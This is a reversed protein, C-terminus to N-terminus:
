EVAANTSLHFVSSLGQLSGISELLERWLKTTFQVGCDSIICQPVGHLRYIQKITMKVLKKASPLGPCATFHAQKSFLDVVTWIVTNGRIESLKVIFDMVIEEWPCSHNAVAQLLGPLKGPQMKMAAYTSCSKVYDEIDTKM